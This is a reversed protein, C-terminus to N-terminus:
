EGLLRAVYKNKSKKSANLTRGSNLLINTPEHQISNKPTRSKGERLCDELADDMKHRVRPLRGADPRSDDSSIKFARRYM